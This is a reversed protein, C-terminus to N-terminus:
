PTRYTSLHYDVLSDIPQKLVKALHLGKKTLQNRLFDQLLYAVSGVMRIEKTEPYKSLHHKFYIDFGKMLIEHSYHETQNQILPPAFKALYRNAQNSFYLERILEHKEKGDTLELVCVRINEPLGNRLYDRFVQMGLWSGGLEDGLLYGLSASRMELKDNSYLSHASGTGFISLVFPEKDSVARAAGLLDSRAEINAIIFQTKLISAMKEAAEKKMCGAGYFYLNIKESQISKINASSGVLSILDDKSCLLANLGQTQETWLVEGKSIAVWDAKTSGSDVILDIM